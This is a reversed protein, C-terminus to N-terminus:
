CLFAWWATCFVYLHYDEQVSDVNYKVM